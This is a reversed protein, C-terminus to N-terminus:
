VTRSGTRDQLEITSAHEDRGNDEPEPGIPFSMREQSENAHVRMGNLNDGGHVARTNGNVSRLEMVSQYDINGDNLRAPHIVGMTSDRVPVDTLREEWGSYGSGELALKLLSLKGDATYAYRKVANPQGNRRDGRKDVCWRLMLSLLIIGPAVVAIIIIGLFSFTQYSGTSTIRQQFCQSQLAASDSEKWAVPTTISIHGNSGALSPNNVFDVVYQQFKALGTEFWGQLELHWQNNPLGPSFLQYLKSSAQLAAGNQGSVTNYTDSSILALFM